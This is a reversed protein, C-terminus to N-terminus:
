PAAQTGGTIRRVMSDTSACTTLGLDTAAADFRAFTTDNVTAMLTKDSSWRDIGKQLESLLIPYNADSSSLAGLQDRESQLAPLVTTKAYQIILAPDQQGAQNPTPFITEGAKIRQAATTCIAGAQTILADRTLSPGKSGSSSSCASIAVIAVISVASIAAKTIKGGNRVTHCALM